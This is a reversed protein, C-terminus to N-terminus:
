LTTVVSCCFFAVVQAAHPLGDAPLLVFVLDTVFKDFSKLIACDRLPGVGVLAALLLFALMFKFALEFAPKQPSMFSGFFVLVLPM